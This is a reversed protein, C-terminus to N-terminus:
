RFYCTPQYCLTAGGSKFSGLPPTGMLPWCPQSMISTPPPAPAPRAARVGHGFLAKVQAIRDMAWQSGQQAMDLVQTILGLLYEKSIQAEEAFTKVEERFADLETRLRLMKETSTTGSEISTTLATAISGHERVIHELDRLQTCLARTMQGELLAAFRKKKTFWKSVAQQLFEIAACHAQATPAWEAKLAALNNDWSIVSVFEGDGTDMVEGQEKAEDEYTEEEEEEEEGVKDMDEEEKNNANNVLIHPSANIILHAWQQCM